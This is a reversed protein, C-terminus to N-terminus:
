LNDYYSKRRELKLDRLMASKVYISFNYSTYRGFPVWGFSLAWCHLDRSINVQTQTFEKSEFHYGSSIQANWKESLSLQGTFQLSQTIQPERNVTHSYSLTYNINLDWPIDFEVYMQPNRIIREKQETPLDSQAAAERTQQNRDRAKPNLSTSAALSASTIRGLKGSKWAYEDIRREVGEEDVIYTYPDLSASMNLNILNDRINTNASISFPSLKFSEAFLNYSSNISLNNLLMIKRSVSDRETQVKMEVNNGIGFGISGSHGQSSGGYVFGEHRSRYTQEGTRPDTLLQFYDKNNRFDPAYSFSVTPNIVHRIAKVNGRKFFFMGYIRTNLGASMTYNAIRNFRRITDAVLVTDDGFQYKWDLQEFYWREDYNISPSITFYRFIKNSTSIPITHRIGKRANKMFLSLNEFTFPAISDRTAEPTVKGINNTIRNTAVMKYGISFNDLPTTRGDKRQFPYLNTMTLSLNPLPLDVLRTRLDQNISGNVGLSFPTGAFKKNYSITSSLKASISSLGTNDNIDLNPAGYALNNNQNYTSTAANVSASFRSNRGLNRPQHSWSLRYDITSSPAEIRESIKTNTYSFLLSGSYRYRKMYNTNINIAHGGKSYIDTTVDLKVYENIDFFYGLNRLAYGRRREEGYSPFIIGSKSERDFPFMGFLFGAPLPIDNFEVYFPGSVIKDNPITKTKTSRIVFHPHELDCTTYANNVSFLEDKENKFAHKVHVIGEGQKTVVESIRARGTRYNYVIDKTEYLDQGDQFVPFGIRQGTSDRRGHATLTGKDYDIIIEEAELQIEGYTIKAQGYLWIKKGDISARISDRASYRITTEIDSQTPAVTSDPRVAVTDTPITDRSILTDPQTPIEGPDRIPNEIQAHLSPASFCLLFFM